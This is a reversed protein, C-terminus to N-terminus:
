HAAVVEPDLAIERLDQTPVVFAATAARRDPAQVRETVLVEVGGRVVRVQHAFFRDSPNVEGLRDPDVDAYTYSQNGEEGVTGLLQQALVSDAVGDAATPAVRAVRVSVQRSLDGWVVETADAGSHVVPEGLGPLSREFVPRVQEALPETHGAAPVQHADPTLSPLAAGGAALMVVVAAATGLRRTRLRRRGFRVPVMTDLGHTPETATVDERILTALDDHTM